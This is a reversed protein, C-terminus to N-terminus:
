LSGIKKEMVPGLEYSSGGLEAKLAETRANLNNAKYIVAMKYQAAPEFTQDKVKDEIIEFAKKYEKNKYHAWALLAYSQPTPRNEIETLAITKISEPNEEVEALYTNYMDGYRNDKIKAIFADTFERELNEQNEFAAIEALLLDYDPNSRRKQLAKLIRKSEATNKDNSFAIWAIGKLAYTNNPDISLASLYQKYSDEIRGAHGYYDGLNTVSWLILGENNKEKADALAKEMLVITQDLDGEHDSWKALRINYDFDKKTAIKDLYERAETKSGLELCVDFLMKQTSRLQDGRKEAIKLASYAERFKHQSICNRALARLYSPQTNNTKKNIEQYLKYAENLHGISGTQSFLSSHAGAMKAQYPYQSPTKEFKESWFKLENKAALANPHQDPSLYQNYDSSQAINTDSSNTCAAIFLLLFSTTTLLFYKM